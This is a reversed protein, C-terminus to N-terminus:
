SIGFIHCVVHVCIYVLLSYGVAGQTLGWVGPIRLALMNTNPCGAFLGTGRRGSIMAFTDPTLTRAESIFSAAEGLRPFLITGFAMRTSSPNSSSQMEDSAQYYM